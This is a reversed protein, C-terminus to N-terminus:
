SLYGRVPPRRGDDFVATFEKRSVSPLSFSLQGDDIM